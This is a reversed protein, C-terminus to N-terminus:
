TTACIDWENDCPRFEHSMMHYDATIYRCLYIMCAEIYLCIPIYVYIYVYIFMFTHAYICTCVHTYIYVYICACELINEECAGKQVHTFEM